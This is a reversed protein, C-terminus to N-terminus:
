LFIYSKEQLVKMWAAKAARMEGPSARPSINGPWGAAVDGDSATPEHYVLQSLAEYCVIGVRVRTGDITSQAPSMDDLCEVLAPVIEERKRAALIEELKLRESYEYRRLDERWNYTGKVASLAARLDSTRAAAPARDGSCAVLTIVM